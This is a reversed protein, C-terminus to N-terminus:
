LTFLISLIHLVKILFSQAESILNDLVFHMIQLCSCPSFVHSTTCSAYICSHIIIHLYLLLSLLPSSLRLCSANPIWYLTHLLSSPFLVHVFLSPTCLHYCSQHLLVCPSYHISHVTAVWLLICLISFLLSLFTFPSHFVSFVSHLHPMSHPYLIPYLTPLPTFLTTFITQSIFFYMDCCVPVAHRSFPHIPYM